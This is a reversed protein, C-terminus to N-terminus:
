YMERWTLTLITKTEETIRYKHDIQLGPVAIIETGSVLVPWSPRDKAPIKRDNFFRSVKKRGAGNCPFFLEGPLASRLLLPFTIKERALYLRETDNKQCCSIKKELLTFEKGAEAVFYCGPGPILIHITECSPRSGRIAGKPLPRCFNLQHGLKEVRMGGELHIEGGNEGEKLFNVLISIQRYTPRIAMQWCCKEIVRRKIAPHFESISLIDLLQRTNRSKENIKECPTVCRAYAAAAHEELFHDETALIDMTQLVTRRIAPSYEQELTPILDLRIRNRLFNRDLNSSDECWSIGLTKLYDTLSNKSEQLLPRIIRNHSLGMGALGKTSSGRILRIFFEEVQDDATHGVAIVGAGYEQRVQELAAYRLIRAAEETSRKERAVLQRVDVTRVLFPVEITQCCQGIFTQEFPTEQPRLGHDIYVALLHLHLGTAQLLHLLALSDVGGSVAVVVKEGMVALQHEHILSTVREVISVRPPPSKKKNKVPVTKM